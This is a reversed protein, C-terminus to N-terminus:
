KAVKVKAPNVVKGQLTYGASVEEFIIDTKFDEKKESAVAEHLEPNFKQGVTAIEEIGLNKLFDVFQKKIHEFGQVWDKGAEDNPVHQCAIKFNNFVPLLEAILSANAFQIIEQQRKEADKKFNSYDAKARKWGNLYEEAKKKLQDLEKQSKDSDSM